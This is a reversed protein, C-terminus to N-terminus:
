FWLFFYMGQMRVNTGKLIEVISEEATYRRRTSELLSKQLSDLKYDSSGNQKSASDSPM